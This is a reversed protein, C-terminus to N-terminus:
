TDDFKFTETKLLGQAYRTRQEFREFFRQFIDFGPGANRNATLDDLTTEFAKFEEVDSQLFHLHQPDLTTLYLNFFNSSVQDDFRMQRYHNQELLQATVYAIKGDDPGPLVPGPRTYTIDARGSVLGALVLALPAVLRGIYTRM